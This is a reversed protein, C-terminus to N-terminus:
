RSNSLISVVSIRFGCTAANETAGDRLALTPSTEKFSPGYTPLPVSAQYIPLQLRVGMKCHIQIKSMAALSIGDPVWTKESLFSKVM